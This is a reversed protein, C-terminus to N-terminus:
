KKENVTLAAIVTDVKKTLAELATDMKEEFTKFTEVSLVQEFRSHITAINGATTKVASIVEKTDKKISKLGEDASLCDQFDTMLQTKDEGYLNKRFHDHPPLLPKLLLVVQSIQKQLGVVVGDVHRMDTALDKPKDQTTTLKILTFDLHSVISIQKLAQCFEAKKKSKLDKLEILQQQRRQHYSIDGQKDKEYAPQYRQFKDLEEVAKPLDPYRQACYWMPFAGEFFYDNIDLQALKVGDTDRIDADDPFGM